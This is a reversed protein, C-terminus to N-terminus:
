IILLYIFNIIQIIVILFNQYRFHFFYIRKYKEFIIERKEHLTLEFYIIYFM